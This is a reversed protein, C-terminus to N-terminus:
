SPAETSTYYVTLANSVQSNTLKVVERIAIKTRHDNEQHITMTGMIKTPICKGSECYRYLSERRLESFIHENSELYFNSIKLLLIYNRFGRM